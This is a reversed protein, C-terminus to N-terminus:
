LEVICLSSYYKFKMFEYLARENHLNNHGFSIPNLTPVLESLTHTHIHTHIKIARRDLTFLM